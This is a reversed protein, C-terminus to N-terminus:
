RAPVLARWDGDVDSAIAPVAPPSWTVGEATAKWDGGAWRVVFPVPFLDAPLPNGEYTVLQRRVLVYGAVEGTDNVRYSLALPALEVQARGPDMGPPIGLNARGTRVDGIVGAIEADTADSRVYMANLRARLVDLDLTSVTTYAAAASVAGTEGAPWGVGVGAVTRSADLLQIDPGVEPEPGTTPDTLEPSATPPTPSIPVSTSSDDRVVTVVLVAVVTCVLVLGGILGVLVLLPRSRRPDSTLSM